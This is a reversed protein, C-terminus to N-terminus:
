AVTRSRPVDKPVYEVFFPDNRRRAVPGSSEITTAVDMTPYWGDTIVTGEDSVSSSIM